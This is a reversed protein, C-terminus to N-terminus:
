GQKFTVKYSDGGQSEFIRIYGRDTYFSAIEHFSRPRRKLWYIYIALWSYAALHRFFLLGLLPRRNNCLAQVNYPPQWITAASQCMKPKKDEVWRAM